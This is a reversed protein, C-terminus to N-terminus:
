QWEGQLVFPAWVYPAKGARWRALQAARLAAAPARGHHCMQTYFHPMLDATDEDVVQWLSVGIRPVGAYMSGRTM